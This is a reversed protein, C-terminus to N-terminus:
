CICMIGTPKADAHGLAHLETEFVIVIEFLADGAGFHSLKELTDLASTRQHSRFRSEAQPQREERVGSTVAAKSM